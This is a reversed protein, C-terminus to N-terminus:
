LVGSLAVPHRPMQFMLKIRGFMLRPGTLQGAYDACFCNYAWVGVPTTTTLVFHDQIMAAVLADINAKLEPGDGDVEIGINEQVNPRTRYVDVEGDVFPSGVPNRRWTVMAGLFDPSVAYADHDNLELAPLGLLTRTLTVSLSLDAM